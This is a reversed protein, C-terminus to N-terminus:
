NARRLGGCVDEIVAVTALGDDGSVPLPSGDVLSGYFREILTEHGRPLRGTATRLANKILGRALQFAVDVTTLARTLATDAGSHTM